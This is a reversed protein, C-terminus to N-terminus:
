RYGDNQQDLVTEKIQVVLYDGGLIDWGLLKPDLQFRLGLLCAFKGGGYIHQIQGDGFVDISIGMYDLTGQFDFLQPPHNETNIYDIGLKGRLNIIEQNKGYFFRDLSDVGTHLSSIPLKMEFTAMDYELIVEVRKSHATISKQDIRGVVTLTAQKNGYVDQARLQLGPVLSMLGVFFILRKRLLEYYGPIGM